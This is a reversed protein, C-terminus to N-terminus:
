HKGGEEGETGACKLTKKGYFEQSMVENAYLEYLHSHWHPFFFGCVSIYVVVRYHVPM